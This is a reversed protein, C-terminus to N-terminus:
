RCPFELRSDLANNWSYNPLSLLDDILQSMRYSATRVRQLHRKGAEDLAESYDELLALDFGDITRLPAQLDHSVSYSFAELEQNTAELQATREIVRQEFPRNLRYIELESQKRETIDHGVSQYETINGHNDFFVRDTWREWHIEGNPKEFLYEDITFPNEITLNSLNEEVQKRNDPTIQLLMNMNLIEEGPLKLSKALLKM